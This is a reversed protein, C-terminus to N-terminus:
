QSRYLGDHGLRTHSSDITTIHYYLPDFTNHSFSGHSILLGNCPAEPLIEVHRREAVDEFLISRPKAEAVYGFLNWGLTSFLHLSVSYLVGINVVCQM